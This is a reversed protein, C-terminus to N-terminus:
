FYKILVNQLHCEFSVKEGKILLWEYRFLFNPQEILQFQRGLKCHKKVIVSCCEAIKTHVSIAVILLVVSLMM